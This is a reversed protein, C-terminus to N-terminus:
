RKRKRNRRIDRLSEVARPLAADDFWARNASSRRCQFARGDGTFPSFYTVFRTEFWRCDCGTVSRIRGGIWHALRECDPTKRRVVNIKFVSPDEERTTPDYTTTVYMFCAESCALVDFLARTDFEAPHAFSFHVFANNCHDASLRAREILVPEADLATDLARETCRVLILSLRRDCIDCACALRETRVIGEGSWAVFRVLDTTVAGSLRRALSRDDSTCKRFWLVYDM